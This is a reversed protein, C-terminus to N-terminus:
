LSVCISFWKEDGVRFTLERVEVDVLAEGTSLFPRCLIILVEYDVECDLIVSNAPLIFKYVRVLVDEIVGLPRKTTRDPIQLIMSTPRPKGIGLTKIVSYSMLNINKGLDCLEKAFEVSRITCSFTFASPDELKPAMSHVIESVQNTMKITEFNISRKETVLDKMFKAYGPM